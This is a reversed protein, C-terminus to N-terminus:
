LKRAVATIWNKEPVVDIGIISYSAEMLFERHEEPTHLQQIGTWKV